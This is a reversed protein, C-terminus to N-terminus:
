TPVRGTEGGYFSTQDDDGREPTDSCTYIALMLVIFALMAGFFLIREVLVEICATIDCPLFRVGPTRKQHFALAM